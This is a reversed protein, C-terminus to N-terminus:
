PSTKNGTSENQAFYKSYLFILFKLSIDSRQLTFRVTDENHTAVMIAIKKDDIGTEIIKRMFFELNKDYMATTSEYSDNIPDEYGVLRSREREQEM